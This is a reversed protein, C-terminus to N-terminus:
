ARLAVGPTVTLGLAGQALLVREVVVPQSGTVVLPLVPSPVPVHEGMRVVIRGGPPVELSRLAPIDRRAGGALV